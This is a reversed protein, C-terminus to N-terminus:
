LLKLQNKTQLYMPYNKNIVVSRDKIKMIDEIEKNGMGVYTKLYKRYQYKNGGNPFMIIKSCENLINKTSHYNMMIHTIIICYINFSRGVNLINNLLYEISKSEEKTEGINEYDDFIVLSNKIDDLKIDKIDQIKSSMHKYPIKFNEFPKKSWLIVNYKPKLNKFEKIYEKAIYSKGVGSPGSILICERQKLKPLLKLKSEIHDGLCLERDHPKDTISYTIKKNMDKCIPNSKSEIICRENCKGKLKNTKNYNLINVGSIGGSILAKISHNVFPNLSVADLVTLHLKKYKSKLPLIINSIPDGKRIILNINPKNINIKLLFNPTLGPNFSYTLINTKSGMWLAISGGLSHGTITVNKFQPKNKLINKIKKGTKIFIKDKLFNSMVIKFDTILERNTSTGKVGIILDEDIENKYIALMRSSLNRQYKWEGLTNTRKEKNSYAEKSIKLMFRQKENLKKSGGSAKLFEM